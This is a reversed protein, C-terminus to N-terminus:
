VVARKRGTCKDRHFRKALWESQYDTPCNMHTGNVHHWPFFSQQLGAVGYISHTDEATHIEIQLEAEAETVTDTDTNSATDRVANTALHMQM